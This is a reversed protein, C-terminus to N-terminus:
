RMHWGSTNKNRAKEIEQKHKKWLVPIVRDAQWKALIKDVLKFNKSAKRQMRKKIKEPTMYGGQELNSDVWGMLEHKWHILKHADKANSYCVSGILWTKNAPPIKNGDEDEVDNSDDDDDDDDADHLDANDEDSTSLEM